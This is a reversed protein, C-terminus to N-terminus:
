GILETLTAAFRRIHADALEIAEAESAPHRVSDETESIIRVSYKTSGGAYQFETASVCASLEPTEIQFYRLTRTKM